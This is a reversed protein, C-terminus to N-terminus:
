AKQITIKYKEGVVMRERALRPVACRTIGFITFGKGTFIQKNNKLDTISILRLGFNKMGPIGVKLRRMPRNLKVVWNFQLHKGDTVVQGREVNADNGKTNIYGTEMKMRYHKHGEKDTTFSM